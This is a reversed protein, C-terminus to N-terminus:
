IHILSLIVAPWYVFGFSYDSVSEVHWGNVLYGLTASISIPLGIAASTGIATKMEINKRLLYPVTLSGGGISVLASIAGIGNSVFFANTFSLPQDQKSHAQSRIMNIATWMMFSSFILALYVSNIYSAIYTAIFSGLVIGVSMVKVVNWSVGGKKNHANLSSLSTVIICAMSTGLALHVINNAALGMELFVYTLVPVLIGGGGVGLLGAIVGVVGGIVLFTVIWSIEIM